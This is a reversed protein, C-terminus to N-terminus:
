YEPKKILKKWASLNWLDISNTFNMSNLYTRLFFRNYPLWSIPLTKTNCLHLLYSKLYQQFVSINFYKFSVMGSDIYFRYVMYQQNCILVYVYTEITELGIYISSLRWKFAERCVKLQFLQHDNYKTTYLSVTKRFTLPNFYSPACSNPTATWFNNYGMCLRKRPYLKVSGM